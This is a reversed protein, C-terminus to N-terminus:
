ERRILLTAAYDAARVKGSPRPSPKLAVLVVTYRGHRAEKPLDAGGHTNLKLVARRGGSEAEVLVEANGAWVCTVGAPCRSDGAVTDFRVRLGAGKLAARQGARLTFERGLVVSAAKERARPRATAARPSAFLLAAGAFLLVSLTTLRTVDTTM